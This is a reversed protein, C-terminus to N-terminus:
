LRVVKPTNKGMKGLANRTDVILAAAEYLAGPCVQYRGGNNDEFRLPIPPCTHGHLTCISAYEYNSHDTVIVVEDASAVAPLM